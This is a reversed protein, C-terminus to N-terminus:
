SQEVPLDGHPDDHPVSAKVPSEIHFCPGDTRHQVGLTNPQGCVCVDPSNRRAADYADIAAWLPHEHWLGTDGAYARACESLSDSVSLPVTTEPSSRVQKLVEITTCIHGVHIRVLDECNREGDDRASEMVSILEAITKEKSTIDTM